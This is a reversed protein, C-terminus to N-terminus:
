VLSKQYMMLKRFKFQILHTQIVTTVVKKKHFNLTQVLLQVYSPFYNPNVFLHYIPKLLELCIKKTTSTKTTYFFLFWKLNHKFFFVSSILFSNIKKSSSKQLHTLNPFLIVMFLFLYFLNEDFYFNLFLVYSSLFYLLNLM